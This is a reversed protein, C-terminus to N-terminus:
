RIREFATAEILDCILAARSGTAEVHFLASYSADVVLDDNGDPRNPLLMLSAGGYGTAVFYDGWFRSDQPKFDIGLARELEARALDLNTHRTGFIMLGGTARRKTDQGGALTPMPPTRQRTHKVLRLGFIPDFPAEDNMLLKLPLHLGGVIVGLPFFYLGRLMLVWGPPRDDDKFFRGRVALAGPSAGAIMSPLSFCVANLAMVITIDPTSLIDPRRDFLMLFIGFVVGYALAADLTFAIFQRPWSAEKYAMKTMFGGAVGLLQTGALM